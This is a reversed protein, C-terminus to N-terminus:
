QAAEAAPERDSHIAMAIKRRMQSAEDRNCPGAGIIANAIRDFRKRPLELRPQAAVATVIRRDHDKRRARMTQAGSRLSRVFAHLIAATGCGAFLDNAFGDLTPNLSSVGVVMVMGAADIVRTPTQTLGDLTSEFNTM